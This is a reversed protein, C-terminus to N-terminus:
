EHTPVTGGDWGGRPGRGRGRDAARPISLSDPTIVIEGDGECALAKVLAQRLPAVLWGGASRMTAGNEGRVVSRAALAYTEPHVRVVYGLRECIAALDVVAPWRQLVSRIDCELLPRIVVIEEFRTALEIPMGAAALESPTPAGRSFDLVDTFAGMGIVLAQRSQWERGDDGLRVIGHGLLSLLSALVESRKARMNGELDNGSLAHALEDVVVIAHRARTDDPPTQGFATELLDGISPAGSWGPSTLDLADTMVFPLDWGGQELADRMATVLLTKGVGTPGVLLARAGRELDGGVHLGAILALHAVAGGHGVVRACMASRIDAIVRRLEDAPLRACERRESRLGTTAHVRSISKASQRRRGDFRWHQDAIDVFSEGAVLRARCTECVMRVRHCSRDLMAATGRAGCCGCTRACASRLAALLPELQPDLARGIAPRARLALQGEVERCEDVILELSPDFLREIIPWWGPSVCARAEAASVGHDQVDAGGVSFLDLQESAIAGPVLSM